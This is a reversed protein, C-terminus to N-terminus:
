WRVNHWLDPAKNGAEILEDFPHGLMMSTNIIKQALDLGGKRRQRDRISTMRLREICEERVIDALTHCLSRLCGRIQSLDGLDDGVQFM